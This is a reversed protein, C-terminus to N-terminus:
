WDAKLSISRVLKWSTIIKCWFDFYNKQLLLFQEASDEELPETWPDRAWRLIKPFQLSQEKKPVSKKKIWGECAGALYKKWWVRPLLTQTFQQFDFLRTLRTPYFKSIQFLRPLRTPTSNLLRPLNKFFWFSPSDPYFKSVPFFDHYPTTAFKQFDFVRPM